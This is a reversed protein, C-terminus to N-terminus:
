RSLDFLSRTAEIADPPAGVELMVFDAGRAVRLTAFPCCESELAALERLEEEVGLEPRFMLRLGTATPITDVLARDAVARWRRRRGPMQDADLSCAAGGARLDQAGDM